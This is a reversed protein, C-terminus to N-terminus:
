QRVPAWKIGLARVLFAWRDTAEEIQKSTPRGPAGHGAGTEVRLLVPADGAQCHQLQAVFKFSHMPVARDDTDATTVLTAPYRVGKKLNHYPSIARLAKFEDPDDPSGHDSVTYPGVGFKHFRLMDM